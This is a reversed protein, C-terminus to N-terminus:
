TEDEGGPLEIEVSDPGLRIRLVLGQPWRDVTPLPWRLAGKVAVPEFVLEQEGMRATVAVGELEPGHLWLGRADHLLWWDFGLHQGLRIMDGPGGDAHIPVVGPKRLNALMADLRQRWDFADQLADDARDVVNEWWRPPAGSGVRQQGRPRIADIWPEGEAPLGQQGERWVSGNRIPDLLSRLKEESLAPASADIAAELPLVELARHARASFPDLGEPNELEFRDLAVTAAGLFGRPDSSALDLCRQVVERAREGREVPFVPALNALLLLDRAWAEVAATDPADDDLLAMGRQWLRGLDVGRGAAEALELSALRHQLDRLRESLGAAELEEPVYAQCRLLLDFAETAVTPDIPDTLASVRAVLEDVLSQLHQPRTM